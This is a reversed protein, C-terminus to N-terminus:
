ESILKELILEPNYDAGNLVVKKARIMKLLQEDPESFSSIVVKKYPGKRGLGQSKILDRLKSNLWYDNNGQHLIIIGDCDRLYRLHRAYIGIQEEYDMTYVKLGSLALTSYLQDVSGVAEEESILYIKSINEIEHGQGNNRHLLRSALITKFTELPSEIIETDSGADDRRIRKLYLAQRQDTIKLNQPIWIYRRFNDDTNKEQYERIINNQYDIVSYKTGKLIEGYNSGMLQIVTDVFKLNELLAEKFEDGSAPMNIAPLIKYGYHQLERRILDRSHQQDFTTLGLYVFKETDDPNFIRSSEEKLSVSIDYVLDLLKSYVFQKKEESEFDYNKLKRNYINREYFDYPLLSELCYPELPQKLPQLVVKFIKATGSFFNTKELSTIECFEKIENVYDEDEMFNPHVFFLVRSSNSLYKIFDSRNFDKGKKVIDLESGAIRQLIVEFNSVYSHVLTQLEDDMEELTDPFTIYLLNKKSM